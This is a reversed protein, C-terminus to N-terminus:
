ESGLRKLGRRRKREVLEAHEAPTLPKDKPMARVLEARLLRRAKWQRDSHGGSVAKGAGTRCPDGERALCRPCTVSRQQQTTLKVPPAQVPIGRSRFRRM